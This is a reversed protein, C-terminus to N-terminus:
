KAKTGGKGGGKPKFFISKMELTVENQALATRLLQTTIEVQTIGTAASIEGIQAAVDKFVALNTHNPNVAM